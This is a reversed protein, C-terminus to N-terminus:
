IIENLNIAISLESGAFAIIKDIYQGFKMTSLKTTTAVLPVEKGNFEVYRPPLFQRKFITHLDTPEHGTDLSIIELIKWYLRNQQTTRVRKRKEVSVVLEDTPKFRQLYDRFRLPDRLILKDKYTALFQM